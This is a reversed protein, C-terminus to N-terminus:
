HWITWRAFVVPLHMIYGMMIAPAIGLTEITVIKNVGKNAFLRAFEEM